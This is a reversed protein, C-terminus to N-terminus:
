LVLIVLSAAKAQPFDTGIPFSGKPLDYQTNLASGDDSKIQEFGGCADGTVNSRKNYGSATGLGYSDCEFDGYEVITGLVDTAVSFLVIICVCMIHSRNM